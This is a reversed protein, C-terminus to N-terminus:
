WSDAIQQRFDPRYNVNFHPIEKQISHTLEAPTFSFGTVNYTRQTLSENPAELLQIVADITDPMYMMPMRTDDKLFCTYENKLIAQHYIDVAYDTTGGGPM